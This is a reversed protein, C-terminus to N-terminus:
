VVDGLEIRVIHGDSFRAVLELEAGLATVAAKLTSVLLDNRHELKSVEPQTAGLRAAMEAQTVHLARRLSALTARYERAWEEQDDGIEKVLAKFTPDAMDAAAVEAWDQWQETKTPTEDKDTM